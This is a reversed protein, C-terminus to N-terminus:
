NTNKQNKEEFGNKSHLFEKVREILDNLQKNKSKYESIVLALFILIFGIFIKLTFEEGLLLISITVGAIPNLVGLLAINESRVEKNSLAYNYLLYALFICFIGLFSVIIWQIPSLLQIQEIGGFILSLPIFFISGVLIISFTVFIPEEKANLQKTFASYGGWSIFALLSILDGVLTSTSFEFNIPIVIFLVGIIAFVMGILFKKTPKQKFYLVNFIVCWFIQTNALISQNTATTLTIGWFQFLYALVFFLFGIVLFSKFNKKFVSFWEQIRKSVAFYFFMVILAFSLRLANITFNNLPIPTVLKVIPFVSGWLITAGIAALYAKKKTL